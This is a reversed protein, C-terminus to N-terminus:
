RRLILPLHVGAGSNVEIALPQAELGENDEAYFVIRYVGWEDLEAHTTVYWDGGERSLNISAIDEVVLEEQDVPAQYSPPYILAWVRDVHVDDRVEVRLADHRDVGIQLAEAQVIYPPWHDLLTGAYAFGRCAAVAEDEPENPIDDGDGNLWPTQPRDTEIVAWRAAQFANYLSSGHGLAALFHDSFVAGEESAWALETSGTSTVIVRGPQSVTRPGEIFSGSHCTEIIVNVKVGPRADELYQLWADLEDPTMWEGWPKDMYFLDTDGHDMLYLTLARDPGVKDVAWDTIARELNEGTALADAGPRGLDTSLYYIREDPYGYDRFLGYVTDTVHHINAQLPDRSKARGAVLILAGPTPTDSLAVISLNYTVHPGAIDPDHNILKLYHPTTRAAEFELRIGPTFSHDQNTTPLGECSDYLELAVDAPSDPPTQVEILYSTGSIADFTM